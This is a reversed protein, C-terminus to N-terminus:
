AREPNSWGLGPQPRDFLNLYSQDARPGYAKTVRHRAPGGLISQRNNPLANGDLSLMIVM